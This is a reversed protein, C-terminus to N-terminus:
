RERRRRQELRRSVECRIEEDSVDTRMGPCSAAMSHWNIVDTLISPIYPWDRCMRPKIPHIGCLGEKWFVCYGGPSNQAVVLRRGSRQCYRAKVAAPDMDLFRAIADIDAETVYTGGFGRCCEGCQRCEFLKM